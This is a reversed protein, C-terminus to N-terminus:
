SARPVFNEPQNYDRANVSCTTEKTMDQAFGAHKSAAIFKPAIFTLNPCFAKRRNKTTM